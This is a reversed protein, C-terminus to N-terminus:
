LQASASREPNLEIEETTTSVRGVGAALVATLAMDAVVNGVTSFRDVIPNVAFIIALGELPLGLAILMPSIVILGGGPIGPVTANFLATYGAALALQGPGFPIGYLKAIFFVNFIM